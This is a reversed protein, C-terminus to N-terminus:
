VNSIIFWFNLKSDAVVKSLVKIEGPPSNASDKYNKLRCVVCPISKSYCGILFLFPSKMDINKM